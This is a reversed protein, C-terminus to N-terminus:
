DAPASSNMAATNATPMEQLARGLDGPLDEPKLVPHARYPTYLPDGIFGIMWSVCPTTKWYAEAMSLKGTLLLPFFEDPLPFAILYPEAVPGLTAVVGDTLLGRVWESSPNHLTLMEYSAIHYGVAGPNFDCGPIYHQVSYWGVYLAVNKVMHPPFVLDEDDIRSHMQTKSRIITELHRLHEDFEGFPDRKGKDDVPLIGRADIAIIGQLGTKEVAVSTRMLKEVTAEDPGDLRMTMIADRTPGAFDYKLPNGLFRSRPYYDWWLLALENDVNAVTADTAFYGAEAAVIRMQGILGFDLQAVSRLKARAAPDWRFKQLSAIDDKAQLVQKHIDEWHQRQNPTLNPDTREHGGIRSDVESIGGLKEVAGLLIKLAAEKQGPDPLGAVSVNMAKVADQARAILDQLSTGQKPTFTPDLSKAATELNSALDATQQELSRALDKLDSLEQKDAPSLTRAAIRFPVGYFTLLCRIKTKLHHDTLFARLPAVMQTEYTDFPMEEANPLDLAIQNETPVGRLQIYLDALKQSDPVNKNTILLIEDPQLALTPAQRLLLLM